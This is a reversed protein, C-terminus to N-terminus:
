IGAYGRVVLSGDNTFFRCIFIAVEWPPVGGGGGLDISTIYIFFRPFDQHTSNSKLFALKKSM